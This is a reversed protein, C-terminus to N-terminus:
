QTWKLWLSIGNILLSSIVSVIIPVIVSNKLISIRENLVYTEHDELYRLGNETIAYKTPETSKGWLDVKSSKIIYHNELLDGIRANAAEGYQRLIVDELMENDKLSKLIKYTNEPLIDM